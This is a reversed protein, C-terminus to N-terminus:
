CPGVLLPRPLSRGIMGAPDTQWIVNYVCAHPGLPAIQKAAFPLMMHVVGREPPVDAHQDDESLEIVEGGPRDVRTVATLNDRAAGLPAPGRFSLHLLRAQATAHLACGNTYIPNWEGLTTLMDDILYRALEPTVVGLKVACRVYAIPATTQLTWAELGPQQQAPRWDARQLLADHHALLEAVRTPNTLSAPKPVCMGRRRM